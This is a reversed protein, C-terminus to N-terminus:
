FLWMDFYGASITKCINSKINDLRGRIIRFGCVFSGVRVLCFLTARPQHMCGWLTDSDSISLSMSPSNYFLSEPKHTCHKEKPICFLDHSKMLNLTRRPRQGHGQEEDDAKSSVTWVAVLRARLVLQGERDTQGFLSQAWKFRLWGAAAVSRANSKEGGGRKHTRTHKKGKGQQTLLQM